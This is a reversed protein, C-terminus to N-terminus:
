KRPSLRLIKGERDWSPGPPVPNGDTLVYLTGDDGESVGRIRSNMETLLREEAVVREGRLVLRALCKGALEAVFLDGRWAPFLKGSYFAIGAPAM